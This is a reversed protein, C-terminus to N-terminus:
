AEDVSGSGNGLYKDVKQWLILKLRAGKEITDLIQLASLGSLKRIARCTEALQIAHSDIRQELEQRRM